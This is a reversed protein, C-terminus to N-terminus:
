YGKYMKVVSGNKSEKSTVLDYPQGHEDYVWKKGKPAPYPVTREGADRGGDVNFRAPANMNILRGNDDYRYNYMNEYTKLTRNELQNQLYKASISNLAAQAVAKTNSKAESQRTYQNDYIQLNQLKSQNLLNRNEGYVKDKMGQNIRFEEAKVQQNAKYKDANLKALLAPNNSAFRQSSRYDAQNENMIEQLSIDYPTSLEPQFTQAQVPELQNTSLAYMEGALQRPDLPEADSPRLYPIAQSLLSLWDFKDEKEEEHKETGTKYKDIMSNAMNAVNMGINAKKIKGKLISEPKIKNEDAVDNIAKQLDAAREKKGAIDKLKMQSGLINAKYSSFELKDHPSVVELNNLDKLSKDMVKNVKNEKKSLDAVYNKFKKGKAGDDGLLPIYEDKIPLNGFVVLDNTGGGNEMKVAPEGGEVEVPNNGYIIDMGGESHSPGRFMVTEGGEPLFPNTSITEANGDYVQLDGDLKNQRIRGGTKMFSSNANQVGMMNNNVSMAGINAMMAERAKKIKYPKRDIASGILQGGIKGITGGVPGGVATGITGGITGGLDGGANEGTIASIIQSLQDTGGAEGFASVAEGFKAKKKGKRNYKVNAGNKGLVDTGTGYIPFLEEGTIVNDEPRVWRRESEEPRVQSAQLMVDSVGKWQRAKDLRKKEEKLKQIGEVLESGIGMPSLSKLSEMFGGGQDVTKPQVDKLQSTNLTPAVNASLSKMLSMGGEAKKLTKGHVKMFDEEKPYKRYFENIDKVGAIKLFQAKMKYM